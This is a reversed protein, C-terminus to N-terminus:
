DLLAVGRLLLERVRLPLDILEFLLQVLHSGRRPLVRHHVRLARRTPFGGLQVFGRVDLLRSTREICQDGYSRTPTTFASGKPSKGANREAWPGVSEIGAM